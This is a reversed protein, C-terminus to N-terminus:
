KVTWTSSLVSDLGVVTPSTEATPISNAVTGNQDKGTAEIYFTVNGIPIVSSQFSGSCSEPQTTSATCISTTDTNLQTLAGNVSYGEIFGSVCSSTVTTSCIPADSFNYQFTYSVTHDVNPPPTPPNVATSKTCGGLVIFMVALAIKLRM